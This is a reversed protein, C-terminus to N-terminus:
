PCRRSCRVVNGVAGLGGVRDRRNGEDSEGVLWTRIRVDVVPWIAATVAIRSVEVVRRKVARCACRAVDSAGRAPMAAFAERVLGNAAAACWFVAPPPAPVFTPMDLMTLEPLASISAVIRVRQSSTPAPLLASIADRAPNSAASTASTSIPRTM